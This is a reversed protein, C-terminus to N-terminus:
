SGPPPSRALNIDLDGAIVVNGNGLNNLLLDMDQITESFNANPPRYTSIIKIVYKGLYVKFGILELCKM